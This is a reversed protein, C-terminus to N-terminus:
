ETIIDILQLLHKLCNMPIGVYKYFTIFNYNIVGNAYNISYYVFPLYTPLILFEAINKKLTHTLSIISLVIFIKSDVAFLKELSINGLEDTLHTM